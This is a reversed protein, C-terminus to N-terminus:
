SAAMWERVAIQRDAYLAALEHLQARDAAIADALGAAEADARSRGALADALEPTDLRYLVAETVLAELPEAVVTIRGCGQHDPGSLCVYRRTTKRASSYLTTARRGCRLLGSLLYRRPARESGLGTREAFSRMLLDAEDLERGAARAPEGSRSM